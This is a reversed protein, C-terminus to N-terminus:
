KIFHKRINEPIERFEFTRVEGNGLIFRVKPNDMYRNAILQGKCPGHEFADPIFEQLAMSNSLMESLEAMKKMKCNLSESMKKM